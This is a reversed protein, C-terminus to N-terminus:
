THSQRSRDLVGRGAAKRRRRLIADASFTGPGWVLLLCSLAILLLDRILDWWTITDGGSLFALIPNAAAGAGFCGCAHNTDGTALARGLAFVFMALMAGTAAAAWRTMFGVLLYAGALVELWPVLYAFLLVLSPPLLHYSRVADAFAGPAQVKDLGAILFIVGVSLRALVPMVALIWRLGDGGTRSVGGHRGQGSRVYAM